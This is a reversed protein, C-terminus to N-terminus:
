MKLRIKQQDAASLGGIVKHARWKEHMYRINDMFHQLIPPSPPWRIYKGYTPDTHLDKFARQISM